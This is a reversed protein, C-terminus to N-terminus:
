GRLEGKHTLEYELQKSDLKRMFVKDTKLNKIMEFYYTDKSDELKELRVRNFSEICEKSHTTAFVQVNQEKSVTLIIEWLKDLNTYHIGNEIEDIFLHGNKNILISGMIEVYRRLGHGLEEIDKFEQFNDLFVQPKNNIIEFELINKDFRNLILNLEERKRQEKIKDFLSILLDNDITSAPIFIQDFTSFITDNLTMPLELPLNIPENNVLLNRSFGNIETSIKLKYKGTNINVNNLDLFLSLWIKGSKKSTMRLQKIIHLRKILDLPPAKKMHRYLSLYCAEMFATKGVNNKGGILNVRGFGEAKFDEFCKYNQIEIETIFHTNM